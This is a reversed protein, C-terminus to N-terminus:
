RRYWRTPGLSRLYDALERAEREEACVLERRLEAASPEVLIPPGWEAGRESFLEFMKKAIHPPVPLGGRPKSSM